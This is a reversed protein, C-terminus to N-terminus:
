DSYLFNHLIYFCYGFDDLLNYQFKYEKINNLLYNNVLTNFYSLNSIWKFERMKLDYYKLFNLSLNRNFDRM